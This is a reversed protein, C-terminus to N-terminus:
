RAVSLATKIGGGVSWFRGHKQDVSPRHLRDRADIVIHAALAWCNGTYNTNAPRHWDVFHSVVADRGIIHVGTTPAPQKNTQVSFAIVIIKTCCEM